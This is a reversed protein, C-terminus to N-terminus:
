AGGRWKKALDAVRDPVGFSNKIQQNEEAAKEIRDAFSPQWIELEELFGVREKARQFSHSREFLQVLIGSMREATQKNKRLADYVERAVKEPSKGNGNFAQFRGAFGYPMQGLQVAFVPLGRGMVFGIEQDTWDSTHFNPHMLAILGHCTSLGLEIESLWEATPAIDNHAVFSSVGYDRLREQLQAAYVKNASLHSVFLRFAGPEWFAPIIAPEVPVQRAPGVGLHVGLEQLTGDDAHETSWIIYSQKSENWYDQTELGFQNLTLDLIPWEEDGLRSVVDKILHVRESKSLAM